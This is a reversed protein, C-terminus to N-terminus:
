GEGTLGRVLGVSLSLLVGFVVFVQMRRSWVGDEKGLWGIVGLPFVFGILMGKVLPGAVASLGFVDEVGVGMNEEMEEGIGAGGSHYHHSSTTASTTPLHHGAQGGDNDLWADEMSRLTDPSPMTDPTFRATHISRFHSRLTSIESPSLGAQLLRDFGAPAPQTQTQAAPATPPPSLNTTTVQLRPQQQSLSSPSQSPPLSPSLAPPPPPPVVAAATAEAQIESPALVDGISCNIFVRQQQHHVGAPSKGKPDAHHSLPPPPPAKLVASLVSADPLIRGNHIFRLLALAAQAAPTPQKTLPEDEANDTAEADAEAEAEADAALRGRILHKLAVVTTQQPSPIDLHLDPLATSFRITIHLPPPAPPFLLASPSRPLLPRNDRPLRTPSSASSSSGSAGGANGRHARSM